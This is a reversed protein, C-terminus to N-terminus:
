FRIRRSLQTGAFDLDSDSYDIYKLSWFREPKTEWQIGVGVAIGSEKNSYISKTSTSILEGCFFLCTIQTSTIKIKVKSLGVLAFGTIKKSIPWDGRLYLMKVSTEFDESASLYRGGDLSVSFAPFFLFSNTSYTYGVEYKSHFSYVASLAIHPTSGSFYPGDFMIDSLGLELIGSSGTNAKAHTNIDYLSLVLVAIPIILKWTEQYKDM